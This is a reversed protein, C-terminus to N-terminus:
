ETVQYLDTIMRKQINIHGQRSEVNVYPVQMDRARVSLSGDEEVHQNDQVVVNWGRDVLKAGTVQDNVLFFDEDTGRSGSEVRSANQHFEGGELYSRISLDDTVNHLTYLQSRSQLQYGDVLYQALQRVAEVIEEPVQDVPSADLLSASAGQDSFMRNPDFRYVDGGAQFSVNRTGEHTLELFQGGQDAIVSKGARAATTENDHMTFFFLPPGSARYLRLEIVRDFLRYKEVHDLFAVAM